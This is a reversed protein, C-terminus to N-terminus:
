GIECNSSNVKRTDSKGAMCTVVLLPITAVKQSIKPLKIWNERIAPTASEPVATVVAKIKIM